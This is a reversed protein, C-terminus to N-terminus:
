IKSGETRKARYLSWKVHKESKNLTTKSLGDPEMILQPKFSPPMIEKSAASTLTWSLFLSSNLLIVVTVTKVILLFILARIKVCKAHFKSDNM